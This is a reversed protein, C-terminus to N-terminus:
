SSSVATCCAPIHYFPVQQLLSTPGAIPGTHCSQNVLKQCVWYHMEKVLQYSQNPGAIPGKDTCFATCSHSDCSLEHCSMGECGTVHCSMVVWERPAEICNQTLPLQSPTIPKPVPKRQLLNKSGHPGAFFPRCSRHFGQGVFPRSLCGSRCM